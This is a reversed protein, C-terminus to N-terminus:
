LVIYNRYYKDKSVSLVLFRTQTRKWIPLRALNTSHRFCHIFCVIPKVIWIWAMWTARVVQIKCYWCVVIILCFRTVLCKQRIAALKYQLCTEPQNQTRNTTFCANAGFEFNNASSFEDRMNANRTTFNNTLFLDYNSPIKYKKLLGWGIGSKTSTGGETLPLSLSASSRLGCCDSGASRWPYAAGKQLILM